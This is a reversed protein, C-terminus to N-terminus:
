GKPRELLKPITGDVTFWPVTTLVHDVKEKERVENPYRHGYYDGEGLLEGHDSTLIADGDEFLDWRDHVCELALKLNEAYAERIEHWHGARGYKEIETRAMEGNTLNLIGIKEQLAQGKEGLFPFHPPIIHILYRLKPEQMRADRFFDLTTRPPEVPCVHTWARKSQTFYRYAENYAFPVPSSSVLYVGLERGIGSCWNLYWQVTCHSESDVAELRGTFFRGVVTEFVDYRCADLVILYKWKGERIKM